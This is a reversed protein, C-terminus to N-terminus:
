KLLNQDWFMLTTWMLYDQNAKKAFGHGEDAALLHWATRGKARVAKVIQDAESAPVRPDNGGTVVMLPIRLEDVRTMPSIEILKQRQKPDREDGYEVRRLDRRYGQTNELFTVFNSIAVTCQAAKFRDGFRIASAYCMYGGYSGGSVGFRAPDLGADRGLVDLFAGIDRVSDERKFPGNDLSVFTKGFGTSGRVNPFFLAVGLENLYYNNRGLFGPQSQGEPGGHISFILPRRGPFRAPDPRYLFGSVELGDFSRVTVLEAPRNRAPDLGGTESQTWRTVALTAPDVAYMDASATASSLTLGIMGWPAIEIGGAVGQPLADVTRVARTRTDLIRLRSAGAENVLYAIFSGDAAIDFGDVDWRPEPSVPTFRGTAPDLTGLRQFDSGDDSTVWLVGDPAFKAGSYAIDRRHDGIPTMAGSALDMRFLNTKTVSVYQAVIASKGDPAFDAVAWGGGKVQAVMRDTAPDRPDMVYLDSDTGNRRTSSYAILRGDHSWANLSNRSKGDTLLKLRGDALTYLQWFESGGVDKQVVTVDGRGRAVSVGAIADAEFSIQTRAGMPQAVEHIQPVNGFRTTILASRRTPHWARFAGSRVELYPRTQDALAAPVAPIGDATLAEPKAATQAVAASATLAACGLLVTKFM